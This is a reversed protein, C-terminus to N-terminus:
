IPDGPLILRWPMTTKVDSFDLKTDKNILRPVLPKQTFDFCEQMGKAERDRSALPHM